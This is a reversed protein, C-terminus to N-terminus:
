NERQESHPENTITINVVSISLCADELIGHTQNKSPQTSEHDPNDGMPRLKVLAQGVGQMDSPRFMWCHTGPAVLLCLVKSVITASPTNM